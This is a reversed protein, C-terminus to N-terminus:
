PVIELEPVATVFRAGQEELTTLQKRIEEKLNWPLIVVYDPKMEILADPTVVPIHSGPLLKGQKEPSKDAVARIVDNGAGCFNLLTNGKAAAGYAAVSWGKQRAEGIFKLFDAKIAECKAQFGEYGAIRDLGAEAEAAKLAGVAATGAQEADEKCVFLRLSGGHTSLREVHFVRLGANAFIKELAVFSLYFFHEHYITDFQNYKILNLLHPFEFTTVGNPKLIEHYGAVFSRIDPVHALVNNAAVLDASVGESALRRATDANFFAVRTPVGRAEAIRAVNEAPEVGLVPIGAKVFNQLLYGDNSAVELVFSQATLGLRDIMSRAYVRAHELWSESQSSLYAYNSFITEPAPTEDTQVHFCTECVLVRLPTKQELNEEGAPVYSNALPQVGLDAFVFRLPSACFRCLATM